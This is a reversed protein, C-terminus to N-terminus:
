LGRSQLDAIVAAMDSKFQAPNVAYPTISRKFDSALVTGWEAGTTWLSNAANINGVRAHDLAWLKGRTERTIGECTNPSGDFSFPVKLTQAMVVGALCVECTTGGDNVTPDNILRHWASMEIVYNKDQECKELDQLALILGDSLKDPLKSSM